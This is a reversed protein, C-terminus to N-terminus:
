RVEYLKPNPTQPKPNLAGKTPFQPRSLPLLLERPLNAHKAAGAREHQEVCAGMLAREHQEVCAGMLM